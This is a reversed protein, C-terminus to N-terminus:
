NAPPSSKTGNLQAARTLEAQSEEKMGERRLVQGLLFHYAATDPSLVIAERLERQANEYQQKQMYLHGLQERIKPDQPALSVAQKLLGEAEDLEGRHLLIIALNLMPQESPHTSNKQWDLADRFSKIADDPRNLADYALGMNDAAKVSRPALVLVRQFCVIAEAFKQRTYRIRGLGYWAEVNKPDSETAKLMWKDAQDYSNLLAYSQAVHVLDESTPTRLKAARTFTELSVKPENQRLLSYGLMYQADADGPHTAIIKRLAVEAEKFRSQAILARAGELSGDAPTTSTHPLPSQLQPYATCVSLSFGCFFLQLWRWVMGRGQPLTTIM